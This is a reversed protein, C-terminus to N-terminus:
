WIYPNTVTELSINTYFYLKRDLGTTIKGAHVARNNQFFTIIQREVKLLKKLESACGSGEHFKNKAYITLTYCQEIDLTDINKALSSDYYVTAESHGLETVYCEWQQNM